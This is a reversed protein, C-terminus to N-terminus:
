LKLWFVVLISLVVNLLQVSKRNSTGTIRTRMTSRVRGVWGLGSDARFGASMSEVRGPIQQSAILRLNTALILVGLLRANFKMTSLQSLNVASPILFIWLFLPLRMVAVYKEIENCGDARRRFRFIGWNVCLITTSFSLLPTVITVQITYIIRYKGLYQKHFNEGALIYRVPLFTLSM